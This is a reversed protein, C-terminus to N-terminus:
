RGSACCLAATNEIAPPEVRCPWGDIFPRGVVASVITDFLASLFQGVDVIAGSRWPAM